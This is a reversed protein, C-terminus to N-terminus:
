SCYNANEHSAGKELGHPHRLHPLEQRRASLVRHSEHCSAFFRIPRPDILRQSGRCSWRQLITTTWNTRENRAERNIRVDDMYVVAHETTFQRPNVPPCLMEAHAMAYAHCESSILLRALMTRPAENDASPCFGYLTFQTKSEDDCGSGFSIKSIM